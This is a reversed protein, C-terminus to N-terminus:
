ILNLKNYVISIVMLFLFINITLFFVCKFLLFRKDRIYQKRIEEDHNYKIVKRINEIRKNTLKIYIMNGITAWIVRNVFFYIVNLLTVISYFLVAHNLVLMIVGVIMDIIILLLGIILNNRALIYVPGFIFPEIWNKNRLIKDYDNDFFLELDDLKKKKNMDVYVGNTMLGCHICFNKVIKSGCNTCYM